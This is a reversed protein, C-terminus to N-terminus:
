GAGGERSRLKTLAGPYSQLSSSYNPGVPVKKIGTTSKMNIIKQTGEEVTEKDNKMRVRGMWACCCEKM